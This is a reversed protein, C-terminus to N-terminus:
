LKLTQRYIVLYYSNGDEDELRYDDITKDENWGMSSRIEFGYSEAVKHCYDRAEQESGFVKAHPNLDRKEVCKFLVNYVVM